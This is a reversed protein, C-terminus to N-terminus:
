KLKMAAIQQDRLPLPGSGGHFDECQLEYAAEAQNDLCSECVFEGYEDERNITLSGCKDCHNAPLPM